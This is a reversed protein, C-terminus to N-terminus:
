PKAGPFTLPPRCRHRGTGDATNERAPKTIETGDGTNERAPKCIETETGALRAKKSSGRHIKKIMSSKKIGYLM